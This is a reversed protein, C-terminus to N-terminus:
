GQLLTEGYGIIELLEFDELLYEIADLRKRIEQIDILPKLVSSRLFRGGMPTLTEDLVWLLTGEYSGDKLNRTLELNRQTASDLFMYSENRLLSIKKLSFVGKQTEDLYSVLAGAASIAANMGDCGYGDLSSVKLHELLTKYAEVYDFYWDEYPSIYFSGLVEQYHINDKLSMPILVEKPEFRYMEDEINEETEYLIFEGTSIDALAVGHKNSFPFLSIIYNNEKPSEPSHTGPTIVKIVERKVIGKSDKPDEM